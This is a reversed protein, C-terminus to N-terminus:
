PRPAHAPAEPAARGPPLRVRDAQGGGAGTQSSLAVPAAKTRGDRSAARRGFRGAAGVAQSDAAKTLFFQRHTLFEDGDAVNFYGLSIEVFAIEGESGLEGQQITGFRGQSDDAYEVKARRPNQRSSRDPRHSLLHPGLFTGPGAAGFPTGW